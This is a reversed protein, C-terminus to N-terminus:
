DIGCTENFTAILVDAAPLHASDSHKILHAEFITAVNSKALPKQTFVCSTIKKGQETKAATVIWADYAGAVYGRAYNQEAM